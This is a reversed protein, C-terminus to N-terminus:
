MGRPWKYIKESFYRNLDKAWKKIPNNSKKSNPQLLEGYIKFILEKESICNAFIKEWGM